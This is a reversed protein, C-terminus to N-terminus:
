PIKASVELPQIIVGRYNAYVHQECSGTIIILDNEGLLGWGANRIQCYLTDFESFPIVHDADLLNSGIPYSWFDSLNILKITNLTYTRKNDMVLLDLFFGPQEFMEQMKIQRDTDTDMYDIPLMKARRYTQPSIKITAVLGSVFNM